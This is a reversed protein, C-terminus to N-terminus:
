QLHLRRNRVYCERLYRTDGSVPQVVGRRRKNNSLRKAAMYGAVAWGTNADAFM